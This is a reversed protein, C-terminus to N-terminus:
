LEKFHPEVMPIRHIVSKDCFDCLSFPVIFVLNISIPFISTFGTKFLSDFSVTFMYM